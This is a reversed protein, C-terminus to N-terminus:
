PYLSLAPVLNNAVPSGLGTVFDYGPISFDDPDSGDSGSIIDNLFAATIYPPATSTAAISYLASNAGNLTGSTRASNALAILASWQPAGVSTGYVQLWGGYPTVYVSVGPNPGAQYCVDPVSRLNGTPFQQWGNQFVPMTEYLSIGGGSGSWAPESWTGNYNTLQTGGVSLVYPSAAPYAVGAGSLEGSDGSSAVFTVGPHNFHVDESLENTSEYYGWSEVWSMSVVSAGANFAYDVAANMNTISNDHSVVLLIKAEPAIAHAWEIDLATELAWNTSVGSQGQGQGQGQPYVVTLGNTTLGFQNCFTTWDAQTADTITTTTTKKHGHVTTTTITAYRDGFADVIAITQGTGDISSPLQDFGYAQRIQAPTFGTPTTTAAPQTPDLRLHVSPRAYGPVLPEGASIDQASSTQTLLAAAVCALPVISDIAKMNRKNKSKTKLERSFSAL